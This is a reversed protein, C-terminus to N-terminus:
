NGAGAATSKAQAQARREAMESRIQNHIQQNTYGQKKMEAARNTVEDATYIYEGGVISKYQHNKWKMGKVGFHVLYNNDM